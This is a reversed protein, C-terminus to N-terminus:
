YLCIFIFICLFCYFCLVFLVFLNHRCVYNEPSTKPGFVSSVQRLTCHTQLTKPANAFSRFAVLLKMVDTDTQRDIRM